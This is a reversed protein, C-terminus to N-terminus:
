TQRGVLGCTYANTGRHHLHAHYGIKHFVLLLSSTYSEMQSHWDLRLHGGLRGGPLGRPRQMGIEVKSQFAVRGELTRRFPRSGSSCGIVFGWIVLQLSALDSANHVSGWLRLIQLGSRGFAGYNSSTSVFGQHLRTSVVPVRFSKEKKRSKGGTDVGDVYLRCLAVSLAGEEKVVRLDSIAPLGLLDM